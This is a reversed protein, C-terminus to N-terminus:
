IEAGMVETMVEPRLHEALRAIELQHLPSEVVSVDLRGRAVRVYEVVLDGNRKLTDLGVL